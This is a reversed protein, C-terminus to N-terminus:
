SPFGCLPNGQFGKHNKITAIQKNHLTTITKRTAIIVSIIEIVLFVLFCIIEIPFLLEKSGFLSKSQTCSSLSCMLAIILAIFYIIPNVISFIASFKYDKKKRILFVITSILFDVGIFILCFIAFLILYALELSLM